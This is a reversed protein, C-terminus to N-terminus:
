CLALLDSFVLCSRLAWLVLGRCISLQVTQQVRWFHFFIFSRFCWSCGCCIRTEKGSGLDVKWNNFFVWLFLHLLSYRPLRRWRKRLVAACSDSTIHPELGHCLCLMEGEAIEPSWREWPLGGERRWGTSVGKLVPSYDFLSRPLM